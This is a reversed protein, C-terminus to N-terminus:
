RHRAFANVGDRHDRILSDFRAAAHADIVHWADFAAWERQEDVALRVEDAARDPGIVIVAVELAVRDHAPFDLAASEDRRAHLRRRRATLRLIAAPRLGRGLRLNPRQARDNPPPAWDDDDVMPASRQAALKSFGCLNKIQVDPEHADSPYPHAICRAVKM